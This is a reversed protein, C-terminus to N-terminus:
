SAPKVPVISPVITLIAAATATGLFFGAITDSVFHYNAGLLGVVTLVITASWLGRFRPLRQWFVMMPATIAATQGSPFSDFGQGRFPFFGYVGNTIFSPNGHTWTEPWARGFVEKLLDKLELVCLDAIAALILTSALPGPRWGCLRAIWSGCLIVISVPLTVDGISGFVAFDRKWPSLTEYAFRAFPRDVFLYCFAVLMWCALASYAVRKGDLGLLKTAYNMM